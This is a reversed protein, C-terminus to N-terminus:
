FKGVLVAVLAHTALLNKNPQRNNDDLTMNGYITQTNTCYDRGVDIVMEDFILGCIKDKESMVQAKYGMLTIVEDLVGPRFKINQVRRELTRKCPLPEKFETRMKEYATAGMMFKKKLSSVITKNTWQRVRHSDRELYEMQDENFIKYPDHLFKNLKKSLNNNKTRYNLISKRYSERCRYFLYLNMIIFPYLSSNHCTSFPGLSYM